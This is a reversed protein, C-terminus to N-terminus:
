RDASYVVADRYIVDAVSVQKGRQTNIAGDERRDQGGRASTWFRGGWGETDGERERRRRCHAAKGERILHIFSCTNLGMPSTTTLPPHRPLQPTM